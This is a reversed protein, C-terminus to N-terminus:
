KLLNHLVELALKQNLFYPSTAITVLAANTILQRTLAITEEVRQNTMHPARFDLDIDLIYKSTLLSSNTTLLSSHPTLLELLTPESRVQRCSSIYGATLSPHIFNWVHCVYNTYEWLYIMDAKKTEDFEESPQALDSHQDIHIVPLSQKTEKRFMWWFYLAHNHNDFVYISPSNVLEYIHKLGTCQKLNWQHDIEEFVIEKWLQVENVSSITTLSPLTIEAKWFNKMRENFSFSNNWRNILVKLPKWYM